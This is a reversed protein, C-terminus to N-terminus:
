FMFKRLEDVPITLISCNATTEYYYLAVSAKNFIWQGPFMDGARHMTVIQEEGANNITYVKIDGSKIVYAMRPAEGQYLVVSGKKFTRVTAHPLLAELFDERM